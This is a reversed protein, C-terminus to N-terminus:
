TFFQISTLVKTPYLEQHLMQLYGTLNEQDQHLYAQTYTSNHEM